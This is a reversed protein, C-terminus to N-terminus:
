INVYGYVSTDHVSPLSYLMVSNRTDNLNTMSLTGILFAFYSLYAVLMKRSQQWPWLCEVKQRSTKNINRQITPKFKCTMYLFRLVCLIAYSLRKMNNLNLNKSPYM